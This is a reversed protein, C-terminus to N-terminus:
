GICTICGQEGKRSHLLHPRAAGRELLSGAHGRGGGARQSEAGAGHIPLMKFAPGSGVDLCDCSTEGFHFSQSPVATLNTLACSM